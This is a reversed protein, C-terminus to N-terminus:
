AFILTGFFDLLHFNPEEWRINNWTVFHPEPLLDGCKYFNAKCLKGKLDTINHHVFISLPIVLTLEWYNNDGKRQLTSKTKITRINAPLLADRNEKGSGFGVLTTGICNFELNYYSHDDFGLFFEVCSDEWVPSNVSSNVARVANEQVYYKLFICDSGYAIAFQVAPKYSHRPWPTFVLTAKSIRDLRSEVETIYSDYTLRPLQYVVLTQNNTYYAM